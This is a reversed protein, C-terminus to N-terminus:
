SLQLTVHVVGPERKTTMYLGSREFVKLMSTNAPLVEAVLEKLGAGRAIATLHRMLAAGLGQGQYQDVVGFAIEARGPQVVIYRGGGVIAPRGDEEVVAVLAVHNIFDVNLFFAVEQETFSRRVAFFRRHLSEATSRGVAEGLGTRDEPRLARIEVCRGDRLAEKASFSPVEAM